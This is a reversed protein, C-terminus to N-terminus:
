LLLLPISFLAGVGGYLILRNFYPQAFSRFMEEVEEPQLERFSNAVVDAM